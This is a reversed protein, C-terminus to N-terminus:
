SLPTIRMTLNTTDGMEGMERLFVALMDVQYGNGVLGYMGNAGLPIDGDVAFGRNMLDRVYADVAAMQDGPAQFGGRWEGDVEGAVIVKFGPPPPVESPWTPPLDGTGFEITGDSAEVKIGGDADLDVSASGGLADNMADEARDTASGCASLAGVALVAGVAAAVVRRM